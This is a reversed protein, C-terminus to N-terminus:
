RPAPAPHRVGVVAVADYPLKEESGGPRGLAGAAKSATSTCTSARVTADGVSPWVVPLARGAKVPVPWGPAVRDRQRDAVGREAVVSRRALVAGPDEGRDASRGTPWRNSAM